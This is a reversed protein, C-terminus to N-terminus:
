SGGGKILFFCVTNHIFKTYNKILFTKVDLVRSYSLFQNIWAHSFHAVFREHGVRLTPKWCRKNLARFQIRNTIVGQSQGSELKM